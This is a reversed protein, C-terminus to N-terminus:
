EVIRVPTFNSIDHYGCGGVTFNHDWHNPCIEDTITRNRGFMIRWTEGPRLPHMRRVPVRMEIVYRDELVKGVVEAGFDDAVVGGPHSADYCGGAPTAAIQYYRCDIAPPCFMFELSDGNWNDNDRGSRFKMKEPKPELATFLFYFSDADRLVKVQTHLREDLPPVYGKANSVTKMFRDVFPADKWVDEDGVGDVVVRGKMEPVRIARKEEEAMKENPKIWYEDLWRRDRGIRFGLIRWREGEGKVKAKEALREAEDLYGLLEEKAGKANLLTPRKPDDLPYGMCMGNERWLRRRLAHYKRMAPYAVGYYKSEADELLGDVDRDVDWLLHGTVYLWQWNSQMIECIKPNGVFKSGTFYAENKWGVIGLKRYLRLDHAEDHEHCVYWPPTCNFYEYTYLRPVVKLWRKMLDLMQVNRACNPDDLHHGYCREHDCFQLKLTPDPVVGQPLKRYNNYAWLRLDADPFERRIMAAVRMSMKYLRTSIDLTAAAYDTGPPDLARCKACECWGHTVDAQGFLYSGKGGNKRLKAIVDDAVKRLLEDNTFCYQHGKVRKGGRLAFWEPHREFASEPAIATFMVHGGGLEYARRSQRPAYFDYFDPYKPNRTFYDQGTPTQYGNRVACEQGAKPVQYWYASCMDLRRIEFDPERFEAFDDIVITDAQPVYDGPDEPVAALFWRVGLKTELFHYTAYLDAVEEKGVIWLKGGDTGTWAAEYNKTKALAAKAAAPVGDGLTKLTGIIVSPVTRQEGEGRVEVQKGSIRFVYNTLETAALVTSPEAREPIVVTASKEAGVLAFSAMLVLSFSM